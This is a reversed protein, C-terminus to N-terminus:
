KKAAIGLKNGFKPKKRRRKIKPRGRRSSDGGNQKPKRKRVIFKSTKPRESKILAAAKIPTPFQEGSEQLNVRQGLKKSNRHKKQWRGGRGKSNLQKLRDQIQKLKESKTLPRNKPKRQKQGRSPTPFERAVSAASPPPPM